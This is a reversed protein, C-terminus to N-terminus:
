IQGLDTQVRGLAPDLVAVLDVDEGVLRKLMKVSDAVMVNLDLVKAALVQKRSFALLQRTLTAAREGAKLIEMLLERTREDSPVTNLLIESCGFIVVLLNNFDHALGGALRGVAEMKQAQRFQEELQKMRTIDHAIKSAGIIEGERVEIPCIDVAVAIV